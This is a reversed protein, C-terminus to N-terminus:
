HHSVPATSSAFASKTFSELLGSSSDTCRFGLTPKGGGSSAALRRLIHRCHPTGFVYEPTFSLMTHGKHPSRGTVTGIGVSFFLPELTFSLSCLLRM